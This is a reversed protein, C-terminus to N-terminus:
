VNDDIMYPLFIQVTTGISIESEVKIHGRHALILNKVIAMGLGSGLNSSRTTTGRYYKNFLNDVCAPIIRKGNTPPM